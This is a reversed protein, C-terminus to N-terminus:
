ILRQGDRSRLGGTLILICDILAWPITVVLGVFTLSLLLMVVGTGGHGLYFRHVGLTGLFLALLFATIKSKPPGFNPLGGAHQNVQVVINQTAPPPSVTGVNADVAVPLSEPPYWLGDTAKWWGPESPQLSVAARAPVPPAQQPAPASPQAPSAPSSVVDTEPKESEVPSGGGANVASQNSVLEDSM